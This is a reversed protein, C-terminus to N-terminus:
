IRIDLDSIFELIWNELNCVALKPSQSKGAYRGERQINKNRHPVSKPYTQSKPNLSENTM